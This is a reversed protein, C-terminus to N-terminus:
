LVRRSSPSLPEASGWAGAQVDQHVCRSECLRPRSRPDHGGRGRGIALHRCGSVCQPVMRHLEPRNSRPVATFARRNMALKGYWADITDHPLPAAMFRRGVAIEGPHRPGRRSSPTRRVWGACDAKAIPKAASTLPIDCYAQTM